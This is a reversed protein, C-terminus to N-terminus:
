HMILQDWHQMGAFPFHPYTTERIRTKGTWWNCQNLAPFILDSGGVLAVDWQFSCPVKSEQFSHIAQLEDKQDEVSRHPLFREQDNLSQTGGMMRRNFKVRNTENWGQLTMEFIHRPIGYQNHIPRSTGNIAISKHIRIHSQCITQEAAWVGLSWAVLVINQYSSIDDRLPEISRYNNFMCLDSGDVRLHAIAKEDMGWGNFFLICTHNQKKNIWHRNM